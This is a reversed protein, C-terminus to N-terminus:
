LKRFVAGCVTLGPGFALSVVISGAAVGPDKAVCMWVHPLTASSMNGYDFLAERSAKVQAESLELRERVVDIIRPGGPHVAFVAGPLEARADLGARACLELVLGRLAGGIKEPVDRSLTMAMGHDSVIWAMSDASDPLVAEHLALVRLGPARPDRGADDTVTYRIFGDAFLSQVVIQELSHDAPDFHLSCLETHVIDVRRDTTLAPPRLAAPLALFGSAMRLAPFAAYCGMHYAHTVRTVAGWRRSAVVRQAGSPSAYGTCTVHIMDSPPTEDAYEEAFYRAVVDAFLRTRAAIGRGHPHRALDYVLGDEWSTRGVDPVVHGRRGVCSSRCAVREIVRRMQAGFARREGADLSGAAAASATHAEAIWELSEGQTM